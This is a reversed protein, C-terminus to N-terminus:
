VRLSSIVGPHLQCVRSESVGLVNGIETPTMEFYYYLTAIVKEREPLAALRHALLVVAEEMELDLQPDVTHDVQFDGLTSVSSVDTVLSANRANDVDQLTTSVEGPDVGLAVAVEGVTPERHLDTHLQQWAKEISRAKSRVSRPVWDSARLGDLIAGQIRQIAYAEFKIGREHDFKDVADILGFYGTSILDDKELTPPLRHAMRGAVYNVLPVYQEILALRVEPEDRREWM